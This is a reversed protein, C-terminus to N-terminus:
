GLDASLKGAGDVLLNDYIDIAAFGGVNLQEGSNYDFAFPYDNTIISFLWKIGGGCLSQMYDNLSGPLNILNDPNDIYGGVKAPFYEKIKVNNSQSIFRLATLLIEPEGGSKNIMIQFRIINRYQDDTAGNRDAGVIAGIIDLQTGIATDIHRLNYLDNLVDEIQKAQKIFISLVKQL